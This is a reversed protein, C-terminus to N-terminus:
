DQYGYNLMDLVQDTSNDLIEVWNSNDFPGATGGYEDPLISPHIYESLPKVDSGHLMIRKKVKSTLLPYAITWALNFFKNESLIHFGRYRAPFCYQTSHIMLLINAPTCMKLQAWSLGRLDMIIRYGAIQSAPFQISHILIATIARFMEEYVDKDPEWHGVKIIMVVAGAKDRFHLFGLINKLILKKVSESNSSDYISKHEKRFMWYNQLLRFAKKSNFKRSRLFSMLFNDDLPTLLKEDNKILRRMEELGRTRNEETENLATRAEVHIAPTIYHILYPLPGEDHGAEDQDFGICESAETAYEIGGHLNQKLKEIVKNSPMMTKGCVETVKITGYM